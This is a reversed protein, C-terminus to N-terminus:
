RVRKIYRPPAISPMTCNLACPPKEASRPPFTPYDALSQPLWEPRPKLAPDPDPIRNEACTPVATTSPDDYCLQMLRSIGLNGAKDRAQAALCIWGDRVERDIAAAFEWYRGTCGLGTSTPIHGFVAPDVSPELGAQVVYTMDSNGGCLRENVGIRSQLFEGVAPADWFRIDDVPVDAAVVGPAHDNTSVSPPVVTLTLARAQKDLSGQNISDCMGDNDTDKLLPETVEDQLWLRVTDQDVRAYVIETAGPVPENARDVVFARFNAGGYVIALDNVAEGLPDFASSRYWDAVFYSERVTPPDLSVFPAENDIYITVSAAGPAENGAVDAVAINLTAQAKSAVLDSQRFTFTYEFGSPNHAWRTSTPDYPYAVSNLTVVTAAPDLGTGLDTGGVTSPDRYSFRLVINGGVVSGSTPSVVSVVPPAGDVNIDITPETTAGRLDTVVARVATLGNPTDSVPFINTDNLSVTSVYTNSGPATEVAAVERDDVLLKVSKTEALTDTPDLPNPIVKISIRLPDKLAVATGSAPELFTVAPGRDLLTTLRQSTGTVAVTSEDQATCEFHVIGAPLANLNFRAIVGTDTRTNSAAAIPEDDGEAYMVVSTTAVDVTAGAVRAAEATCEVDAQDAVLVGPANPDLTGIPSVIRM